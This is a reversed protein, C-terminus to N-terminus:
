IRKQSRTFDGLENLAKTQLERLNELNAVTTPSATGYNNIAEVTKYRQGIIRGYLTKPDKEILDSFADLRAQIAPVDYRPDETINIANQLSGSLNDAVLQYATVGASDSGPQTPDQFIGPNQELARATMPFNQELKKFRAAARTATLQLKTRAASAEKNLIHKM